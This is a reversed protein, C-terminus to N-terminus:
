NHTKDFNNAYELIDYELTTLSVQLKQLTVQTPASVHPAGSLCTIPESITVWVEKPPNQVGGPLPRQVLSSCTPTPASRVASMHQMSGRTAIGSSISGLVHGNEINTDVLAKERNM